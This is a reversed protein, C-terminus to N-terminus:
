CRYNNKGPHNIQCSNTSGVNKPGHVFKCSSDCFPGSDTVLTLPSQEALRGFLLSEQPTACPNPSTSSNMLSPTSTPNPTSTPFPTSLFTSFPTDSSFQSELLTGHLMLHGVSKQSCDVHGQDLAHANAIHWTHVVRPFHADIGRSRHKRRPARCESLQQDQWEAQQPEHWKKQSGGIQQLHPPNKRGTSKGLGVKGGELDSRLKEDFPYQRERFRKPIFPNVRGQERQNMFQVEKALQKLNQLFLICTRLRNGAAEDNKGPTQVLSDM